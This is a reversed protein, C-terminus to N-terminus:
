ATAVFQDDASAGPLVAVPRSAGATVQLDTTRDPEVAPAPRSTLGRVPLGPWCGDSVAPLTGALQRDDSRDQLLQDNRLNERVQIEARTLTTTAHDHAAGSATGAHCARAAIGVAAAPPDVAIPGGSAHTAASGQLTSSPGCVSTVSPSVRSRIAISLTRGVPRRSNLIRTGDGQLRFTMVSRM